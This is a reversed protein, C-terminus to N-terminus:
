VNFVSVFTLFDNDVVKERRYHIINTLILM